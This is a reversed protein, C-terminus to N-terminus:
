LILSMKTRKPKQKVKCGGMVSANDRGEIREEENEKRKKESGESRKEEM